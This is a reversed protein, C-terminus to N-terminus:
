PLVLRNTPFGTQQHLQRLGDSTAQQVSGDAMGINGAFKHRAGTWTVPVNAPLQRVGSEVPVGNIALNDDGSLLMQPHTDNTVDLGVFYSINSNNLTSFNAAWVRLIDAPFILIKPTSLENSMVLFNAAVDGGAVLEMAGGNTVSVVMPYKDNHDNAWLRYAIGTQKLNSVCNIRVAKRGHMPAPITLAIFGVVIALVVLVEVLTMATTRGNSLRLKMTQSFSLM